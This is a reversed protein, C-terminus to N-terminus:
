KKDTEDQVSKVIKKVRKEFDQRSIMVQRGCTLCKIRFDMGTRMVVWEFGGCPHPKKLRVVDGLHFRDM